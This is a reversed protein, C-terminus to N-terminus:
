SLGPGAGDAKALRPLLIERARRLHGPDDIEGWILDPDVHVHVPQSAAARVLGDTEYCLADAHPGRALEALRDALGASIKSIGVLEGQVSAVAARDKSMAVLLGSPAEIWVEDGAGTPGSALIVDEEPHALLASLARPEYLLDGELLLFPRRVCPLAVALSALTGTSAYRANEVLRVGPIGTTFRAIEDARFGVVITVEVIGQAALLRLSRGLLREPGVELLAKPLADLVAGLRTGLGAALIVASAVGGGRPPKARQAPRSHM